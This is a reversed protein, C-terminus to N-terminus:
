PTRRVEQGYVRRVRGKPNMQSLQWDQEHDLAERGSASRRRPPAPSPGLHVIDALCDCIDDHKGPYKDLENVVADLGYRVRILGSKVVPEMKTIRLDKVNETGGREVMQTRYYSNQEQMDKKCWTELQLQFSTAEIYVCYPHWRDVHARIWNIIEPGTPHGRTMDVVWTRGRWDKAATLVVCPDHSDKLSRNPDVATYFTLLGEAGQPVVSGEDEMEFRPIDKAYFYRISRPRPNNMYQCSWTFEDMAAKLKALGDKTFGALREPSKKPFAPEGPYGCDTQFVDVAQHYQFETDMLMGYLDDEHWRTGVVIIPGKESDARQPLLNMFFQKTKTRMDETRYNDNHVIDDVILLDYHLGTTGGGESSVLLSPVKTKVKRYVDIRDHKWMGGRPNKRFSLPYITSYLPNRELKDKIESLYEIGLKHLGHVLNVTMDPNQSWGWIPYAISAISSKLHKRPVLLLKIFKDKKWTSLFECVEGHLPPHMDEYGVVEECFNYLSEDYRQQLRNREM